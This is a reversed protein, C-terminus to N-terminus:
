LFIIIESSVQKADDTLVYEVIIHGYKERIKRFFIYLANTDEKDSICHAVPVGTNSEDLVMLTILKFGYKTTSHTADIVVYRNLPLCRTLTDRQFKTMIRIVFDM